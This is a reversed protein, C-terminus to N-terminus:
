FGYLLLQLLKGYSLKRLEPDLNYISHFLELRITQYQQCQLLFHFTTKTASGCDCM